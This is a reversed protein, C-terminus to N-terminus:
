TFLDDEPSSYAYGTVTTTPITPAIVTSESGAVSPPGSDSKERPRKNKSSSLSKPGWITVCRRSYVALLGSGYAIGRIDGVRLISILLLPYDRSARGSLRGNILNERPVVISKVTLTTASCDWLHVGQKSAVALYSDM